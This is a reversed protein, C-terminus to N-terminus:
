LLNNERLYKVTETCGGTNKGDMIVQPFTSGAGFKNYFAQRDFDRDLVYEKYNFKKAELVQKIKSCYPCGRRTYVDFTM